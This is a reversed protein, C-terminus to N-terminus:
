ATNRSTVKSGQCNWTVLRVSAVRDIVALPGSMVLIQNGRQASGVEATSALNRVRSTSIATSRTSM